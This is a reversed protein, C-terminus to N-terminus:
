LKEALKQRSAAHMPDLAVAKRWEARAKISDGMIQYIIGIRYHAESSSPDKMLILSYQEEAMAFNARSKYIDGMIFRGNEKALDDKGSALLELLLAEAKIPQGFDLYAKAASLLLLDTRSRELAIEFSKVAEKKQGLGVYGLALYEWSDIGIYGSAISLELYKVAEDFYCDGKAFYAKGLVYEVQANPMEGKTTIAKRLSMVAEDLLGTREEGEPLDMGKYYASLGRFSLFFADLPQVTLSFVAEAHVDNWKKAEWDSIIKKRPVERRTNMKSFIGSKELRIGLTIILTVTVVLSLIFLLRQRGRRVIYSGTHLAKNRLFSKMSM